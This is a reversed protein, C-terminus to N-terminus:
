QSCTQPDFSLKHLRTEGEPMVVLDTRKTLAKVQQAVKSAGWYM